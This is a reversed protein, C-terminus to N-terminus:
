FPSARSYVFQCACPRLIAAGSTYLDQAVAFAIQGVVQDLIVHLCHESDGIADSDQHVTADDSGTRRLRDPAILLHSLRIQALLFARIGSGVSSSIELM